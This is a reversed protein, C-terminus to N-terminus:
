REAEELVRIYRNAERLMHDALLPLIISETKCDLIGEVAKEKFARYRETEELSSKRLRMAMRCDQLKALNLLELYEQAFEQAAQVSKRECPDLLGRIFLAHEMMIQNWFIEGGHVSQMSMQAGKIICEVTRKYLEAEQITHAVLMPYNGNFLKGRRVTDLIGRKLEILGELLWLARENIKQVKGRLEKLDAEDACKKCLKQERDTIECDIPIGTLEQTRKEASLTFKTTLECSKQVEERVSGPSLAVTEKLLEEFHERYWGATRIWAENKAPFGAQLFLAHEMMTRAFFLHTEISLVVYQNM